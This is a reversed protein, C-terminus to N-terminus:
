PTPDSAAAALLRVAERYARREPEIRSLERYHQLATAHDGALLADVARRALTLEHPRGDPTSVGLEAARPAHVEAPAAAVPAAAVPAVAVPPSPAAGAAVTAAPAELRAASPRIPAVPPRPAAASTSGIIGRRAVSRGVFSGGSVVATMALLLVSLKRTAPAPQFLRALLGPSAARSEIQGADPTETPARAAKRGADALAEAIEAVPAAITKATAWTTVRARMDDFARLLPAAPPLAPPGPDLRPKALARAISKANPVPAFPPSAFTATRRSPESSEPAAEPASPGPSVVFIRTPENVDRAPTTRRVARPSQGTPVEPAGGIGLTTLVSVASTDAPRAAPAPAGPDSARPPLSFVQTGGNQQPPQQGGPSRQYTGSSRSSM